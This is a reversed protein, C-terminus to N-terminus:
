SWMVQSKLTFNRSILHLSHSAVHTVNQWKIMRKPDSPLKEGITPPTAWMLPLQIQLAMRQSKSWTPPSSKNPPSSGPPIRRVRGWCPLSHFMINSAINTHSFNMTFDLIRPLHMSRISCGKLGKPINALILVPEYFAKCSIWWKLDMQIMEHPIILTVSWYPDM